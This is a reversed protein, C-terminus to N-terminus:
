PQWSMDMIFMAENATPEWKLNSSAGYLAYVQYLGVGPVDERLIEYAQKYLDMRKDSDLTSRAADVLVDYDANSYKAWISGSRFLPYIIGDADQCACSWAGVALGGANSAEGQRRKLFTAQDSSSIEVKLGVESVMQQIAEVLARNYAPSTLFEVTAGEVGAEKILAAAKAPDYDYGQVDPTYGFIPEAGIINVPAAYGELLADILTQRDIAHAIAKRVRVDATPGAEANIYLYGVRETAGSLLAAGASGTISTAQDPPVERILDARGTRLDAIRTSVDPVARFLVSPFPPTGRWYGDYAALETEVGKRWEVLKYPGSGMPKVNFEEDGVKEVYAKPVVSLKVLQAMLAPYASKTLVKVTVADMAEASSIQNFQGLQPSKLNPDIIRNISFAVDEATLKSGDHFTVDDRIKFEITTDDLYTWSLAIQPVIEGATNRTVLNDFINRYIVYSDTNWQLHPDLTAADGPLDITLREKGQAFAAGTMMTLIAATTLFVRRQM